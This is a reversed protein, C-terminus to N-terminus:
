CWSLVTSREEHWEKSVVVSLTEELPLFHLRFYLNDPAVFASFSNGFLSIIEEIQFPIHRIHRKWNCFLLLIAIFNTVYEEQGHLSGHRKPQTQGSKLTLVLQRASLPPPLAPIRIHLGCLGSQRTGRARFRWIPFNPFSFFVTALSLPSFRSAHPLVHCFRELGRMELDPM